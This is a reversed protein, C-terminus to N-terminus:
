GGETALGDPGIHLCLPAIRPSPWTPEAIWRGPRIALSSRPPVWDQMFARLVPEDMIGTDRGGPWHDWWRRAGRLFGVAPGPVGDHPYAHAWPGVLGRRPARLRALLRFLANTYPDAFGGVLFVPCRIARYDECVSGHRWYADPRQHRLWLAPFLPARALRTRWKDRWQPGSIEPDPPLANFAFLSSGWVLNENLLCGGMYHADDAHRDDSACVAIVAKLQPPNQAAVQLANFGGWSKGFMGVNGD